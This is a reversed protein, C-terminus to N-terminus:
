DQRAAAQCLADFQKLFSVGQQQMGADAAAHTEPHFQTGFIPRSKHGVLQCASERVAAHAAQWAPEPVAVNELVAPLSELVVEQQHSEEVDLVAGAAMRPLLELPKQLVVRAPMRQDRVADIRRVQAGFAHCVLQHGFCTGLIPKPSDLIFRVQDKMWAEQPLEIDTVNHPSGSLIFGDFQKFLGDRLDGSALDAKDVVALDGLAQVFRETRCAPGGAADDFNNILALKAM